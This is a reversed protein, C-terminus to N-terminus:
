SKRRKTWFYCVFEVDESLFDPMSTHKFEAGVGYDLRNVITTSQMGITNGDAKVIEFPLTIDKTVGHMSLEGDAEFKGQGVKRISTSM